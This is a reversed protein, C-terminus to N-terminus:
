FVYPALLTTLQYRASNEDTRFLFFNKFDPAMNLFWIFYQFYNQFKQINQSFFHSFSFPM